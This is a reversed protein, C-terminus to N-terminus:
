PNYEITGPDTKGFTLYWPQGLPGGQAAPLVFNEFTKNAVDYRRVAGTDPGSNFPPINTIPVFLFGGPGFLIAQAYARPQGVEDLDIKDVCSGMGDFILVKDTDSSDARFTTVYLRGDPGFVLGEPRHLHGACDAGEHSAFVDVFSGNNNPDFRLIWGALMNAPNFVSVYLLGGPGLVSGRPHFEDTSFAGPFETDHDPTLDSLFVGGGTYALLRGPPVDKGKGALDTVFLVNNGNNGNNWLVISRPAFPANPDNHPVLAGLFKGTAGSYKLIEGYQSGTGVNQNSVLLDGESNFILGMPGKIHSNGKKIFEGLFKGTSKLISVCQRFEFPKIIEEM